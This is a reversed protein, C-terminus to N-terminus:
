GLSRSASASRGISGPSGNSPATTAVGRRTGSERTRPASRSPIGSQVTPGAISRSKAPPKRQLRM